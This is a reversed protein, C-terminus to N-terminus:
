KGTYVPLVRENPDIVCEIVFPVPRKRGILTLARDLAASLGSMDSVRVGNAGFAEAVKVFDTKRHLESQSTRRYLMKQWQKVMGLSSNNMIIVILPINCSVATALEILDMGFSGDGTYLVVPKGGDALSAGIAAGMGFGMTGLGGSTIFGRPRTIPCYQAAWMQHQGVDTVITLGATKESVAGIIERPHMFDKECPKVDDAVSFKEARFDADRRKIVDSFWERRKKALTEDPEPLLRLLESLSDRIDGIVYAADTVNKDVEAPDIDLQVIKANRVLEGRAGTARDTFRTGVAIITDAECFAETSARLGHMGTLGLKGPASETLASLGMLSCGVPASLKESLKEVLEGADASVAGGGCYVFPREAEAIIRLAKEIGSPAKLKKPPIAECQCEELLAEAEECPLRASQIDRPIDVLVPGKRKDAAIKFAEHLISPLARVDKVIYNHKTVPMTIDAIDLEQFSDRGIQSTPVNGTIAVVPSSDLYATAIGTVLNSAGPGSTAIVVGTKGSVRAYGDAAHAAGQEHSTLIHRLRGKEAAIAYIDLVQGGPYGFVTDVGEDLLIRVVLEAGSYTKKNRRPKGTNM